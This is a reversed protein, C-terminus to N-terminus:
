RDIFDVMLFGEAMGTVKTDTMKNATARLEDIAEYATEADPWLIYTRATNAGTQAARFSIAGAKKIAPWMYHAVSTMAEADTFEWDTNTIFM